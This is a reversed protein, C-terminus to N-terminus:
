AGRGLFALGDAHQEGLHGAQVAKRRGHVEFVQGFSGVSEPLAQVGDEGGAAPINVLVDAIHHHSQPPNILGAFIVRLLGQVGGQGHLLFDYPCSIDHGWRGHGWRGRGWAGERGRDGQANADVGAGDQQAHHAGGVFEGGHAVRNVQSGAQLLVGWGARDDDSLIGQAQHAAQEIDLRECAPM